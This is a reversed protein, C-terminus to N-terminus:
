GTVKVDFWLGGNLNVNNGHAQGPASDAIYTYLPHGNYTAQKTGDTRTITGLHGTVGPGASVPGKVPPWYVACSGYCTSKNVPDPAFVYVTLGAANTLVTAGGIKATKVVASGSATAPPAPSGAEALDVALLVIAVACAAGVAGAYIRASQLSAPLGTLLGQRRASLIAASALAAFAAVEVIGAAIGATTSVEKFGFLGIWVTLLYGGLVSLAFVAGVAAPLWNSTALVAAALVFAVILQLLFLWGITPITRYGTLYLDLHIAATAVLLGAGIVRLVLLDRGGSGSNRMASVILIVDVEGPHNLRGAGSLNLYARPFPFQFADPRGYATGRTDDANQRRRGAHQATVGNLFAV